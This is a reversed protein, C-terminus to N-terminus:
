GKGQLNLYVFLPILFLAIMLFIGTLYNFYIAWPTYVNKRTLAEKIAHLYYDEAKDIEIQISNVAIRYGALSIGVTLWLLGWAIYLLYLSDATELPVVYRIALLSFGLASSSLTLISKDYFESNSTERKYLEASQAGYLM